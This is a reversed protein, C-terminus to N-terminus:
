HIAPTKWVRVSEFTCEQASLTGVKDLIQKGHEIAAKTLDLVEKPSHDWRPPPQPPSLSTMHQSAISSPPLLSFSASAYPRSQRVHQATLTSIIVRGSKRSWRRRLISTKPELLRNSLVNGCLYHDKSLLKVASPLSFQAAARLATTTKLMFKTLSLGRRRTM